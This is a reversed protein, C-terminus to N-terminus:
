ILSIRVSSLSKNDGDYLVSKWKLPAQDTLIIIQIFDYSFESVVHDVSCTNFQVLWGVFEFDGLSSTTNEGISYTVINKIAESGAALVSHDSSVKNQM